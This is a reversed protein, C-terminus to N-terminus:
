HHIRSYYEYKHEHEYKHENSSECSWLTMFLSIDISTQSISVMLFCMPIFPAKLSAWFHFSFSFVNWLHMQVTLILIFNTLFHSIIINTNINQYQSHFHPSFTIFIFLCSLMM